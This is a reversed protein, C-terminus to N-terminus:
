YYNNYIVEWAGLLGFITMILIPTKNKEVCDEYEDNDYNYEHDDELDGRNNRCRRSSGNYKLYLESLLNKHECSDDVCFEHNKMCHPCKIVMQKKVICSSYWKKLCMEHMLYECQCCQIFLYDEKIKTDDRCIICSDDFEISKIDDDTAERSLTRRVARRSEERRDGLGEKENESSIIVVEIQHKDDEEM